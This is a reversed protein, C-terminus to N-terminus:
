FEDPEEDQELDIINELKFQLLMQFKTAVKLVREIQRQIAVIETLDLEIFDNNLQGISWQIKEAEANILHGIALEEIAISEFLDNIVEDRDRDPIQPVSM